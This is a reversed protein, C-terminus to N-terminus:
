KNVLDPTLCKLALKGHHPCKIIGSRRGQFLCHQVSFGIPDRGTMSDFKQSYSGDKIMGINDDDTVLPSKDGYCYPCPIFHCLNKDSYIGLELLGDFWDKFVEDITELVHSLIQTSMLVSQHVEGGSKSYSIVVYDPVNVEFGDSVNAKTVTDM